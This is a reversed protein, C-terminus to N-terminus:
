RKVLEYSDGPHEVTRTSHALERAARRLQEASILQASEASIDMLIEKVSQPPRVACGAWWCTKKLTM